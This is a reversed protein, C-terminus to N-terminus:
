VLANSLVPRASQMLRPTYSLQPDVSCVAYGVHLESDATHAVGAGLVVGDVAVGLYICAQQLTHYRRWPQSSIKMRAQACAGPQTSQIAHAQLVATGLVASGLVAVGLYASASWWARTSQALEHMRHSPSKPVAPAWRPRTSHIAHAQLVATGLVASGLVATGLVAVGLVCAAMVSAFKFVATIAHTVLGVVAVVVYPGIVSQFVAATVLMAFSSKGDLVARGVNLPSMLLHFTTLTDLM